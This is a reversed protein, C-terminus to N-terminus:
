TPFIKNLFLWKIGAEKHGGLNNGVSLPININESSSSTPSIKRYNKKHPALIQTPPPPTMGICICQLKGCFGPPRPTNPAIPPIPYVDVGAGGYLFLVIFM